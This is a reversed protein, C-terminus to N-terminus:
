VYRPTTCVGHRGSVCLQPPLVDKPTALFIFFSLTVYLVFPNPGM